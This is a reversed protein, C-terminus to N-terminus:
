DYSEIIIIIISLQFNFKSTCKETAIKDAVAVQSVLDDKLAGVLGAWSANGQQLWRTIIAKHPNETKQCQKLQAETLGLILPLVSWDNISSTYGMVKLLNKEIICYYHHLCSTYNYLIITDCAHM